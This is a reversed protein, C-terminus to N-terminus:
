KRLPRWGLSDAKHFMGRNVRQLYALYPRQDEQVDQAGQQDLVWPQGDDPFQFRAWQKGGSKRLYSAQVQVRDIMVRDFQIALMLLIDEVGEHGELDIGEGACVHAVGSMGDDSSLETLLELEAKVADQQADSLGALLAEIAKVFASGRGDICWDFDGDAHAGRAELFDRM